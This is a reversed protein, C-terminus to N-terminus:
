AGEWDRYLEQPVINLNTLLPSSAEGQRPPEPPSAGARTATGPDRRRRFRCHSRLRRTWTRSHPQETSQRQKRIHSGLGGKSAKPFAFLINDVFFSM